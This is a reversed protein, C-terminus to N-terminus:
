KKRRRTKAAATEYSLLMSDLREKEADTFREESVADGVTEYDSRITIRGRELAIRAADRRHFPLGRKAIERWFTQV